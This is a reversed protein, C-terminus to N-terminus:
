IELWMFISERYHWSIIQNIHSVKMPGITHDTMASTFMQQFTIVKAVDIDVAKPDKAFLNTQNDQRAADPIFLPKQIIAGQGAVPQIPDIGPPHINVHNSGNEAMLVTYTGTVFCVLGLVLVLQFLVM